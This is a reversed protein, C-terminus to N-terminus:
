INGGALAAIFTGAAAALGGLGGLLLFGLGGLLYLPRRRRLSFWLGAAFRYLCLIALAIGGYVTMRILALLSAGSFGRKLGLAYLLVSLLCFLFVVLSARNLLCLLLPPSEEGPNAPGLRGAWSNWFGDTTRNGKGPSKNM